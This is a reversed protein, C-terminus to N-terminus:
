ETLRVQVPDDPDQGIERTDQHQRRRNFNERAKGIYWNGDDEDEYHDDNGQGTSAEPEQGDEIKQQEPATQYVPQPLFYSDSHILTRYPQCVM